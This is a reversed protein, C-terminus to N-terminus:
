YTYFDRKSCFKLGNKRATEGAITMSKNPVLLMDDVCTCFKQFTFLNHRCFLCASIVDHIDEQICVLENPLNCFFDNFCLQQKYAADANCLLTLFGGTSM